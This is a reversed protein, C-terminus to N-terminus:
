DILEISVKIDKNLDLKILTKEIQKRFREKKHDILIVLPFMFCIGMLPSLMMVILNIIVSEPNDQMLM